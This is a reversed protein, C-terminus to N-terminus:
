FCGVKLFCICKWLCICKFVFANELPAWPRELHPWYRSSLIAKRLPYYFESIIFNNRERVHTIYSSVSILEPFPKSSNYITLCMNFEQFANYHKPNYKLRQTQCWLSMIGWTRQGGESTGYHVMLIISVVSYCLLIHRQPLILGSYFTTLM